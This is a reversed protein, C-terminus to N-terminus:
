ARGVGCPDQAVPCPRAAHTAACLLPSGLGARRGTFAFNGIVSRQEVGCGSTPYGPTDAANACGAIHPYVPDSCGHLAAAIAMVPLLASRMARM